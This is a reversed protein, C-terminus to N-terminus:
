REPPPYTLVGWPGAPVRVAEIRERSATDIVSVTDSLGDATYLRRGDASLALGWVREGVPIREELALTAADLVLVEDARGAAVYLMGRAADLAIGKPKAGPIDRFTATEVVTNTELDIRTVAAGVESTVYAYRNDPSVVAERPRAPVGLEAIMRHTAQDIVHLM